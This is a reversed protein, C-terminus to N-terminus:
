GVAPGLRRYAEILPRSQAALALGRVGYAFALRSPLDLSPVPVAPPPGTASAAAVAPEAAGAAQRGSEELLAPFGAADASPAREASDTADVIGKVVTAFLKVGLKVAVSVLISGVIPAM